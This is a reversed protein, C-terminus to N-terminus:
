NTDPSITQLKVAQEALQNDALLDIWQQSWERRNRIQLKRGRAAQMLVIQPPEALRSINLLDPADRNRTSLDTLTLSNVNKMFLSAFLAWSAGEKNAELSFQLDPNKLFEQLAITARLIDYTQMGAVTQGLQMFRRRIQTRKKVEESWETPGIGRPAVYAITAAKALAAITEWESADPRVDGTHDPILNALGSMTASWKTKDLIHLTLSEPKSDHPGVLYVRLRYPNQSKFDIVRVSTNAKTGEAVLKADTKGATSPWGGFCKQRIVQSTTEDLERAPAIETPLDDISVAPVFTEHISTVKEDSPLM